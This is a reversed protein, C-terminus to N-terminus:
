RPPDRRFFDTFLDLLGLGLVLIGSLGTVVLIFDYGGLGHSIGYLFALLFLTLGLPILLQWSLSKKM